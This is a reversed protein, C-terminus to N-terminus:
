CFHKVCWKVGDAIGKKYLYMTEPNGDNRVQFAYAFDHEDQQIKRWEDEIEKAKGELQCFKALMKLRNWENKRELDEKPVVAVVAETKQAAKTIPYALTEIKAVVADLAGLKQNLAELTEKPPMTGNVGELRGLLRELADLKPIFSDLRDLQNPLSKALVDLRPLAGQWFYLDPM